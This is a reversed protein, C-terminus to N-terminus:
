PEIDDWVARSERDHFQEMAIEERKRRRTEARIADSAVYGAARYLWGSLVINHPLSKAKRALLVFVSQTVDHALDRGRVQRLAASYVLNVYRSVIAAFADDSKERTFRRLLENADTAQM